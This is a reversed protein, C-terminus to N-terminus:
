ISNHIIGRGGGELFLHIVNIQCRIYASELGLATNSGAFFM